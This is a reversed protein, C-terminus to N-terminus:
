TSEQVRVNFIATNVYNNLLLDDCISANNVSKVNVCMSFHFLQVKKSDSLTIKQWNIHYWNSCCDCRIWNLINDLKFRFTKLIKAQVSGTTKGWRSPAGNPYFFLFKVPFLPVSSFWLLLTPM